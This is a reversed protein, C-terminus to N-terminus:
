RQTSVFRQSEGWLAQCQQKIPSSAASAAPKASAQLLRSRESQYVKGKRVTALQALNEADAKTRWLSLYAEDRHGRMQPNEAECVVYSNDYRALAKADITLAFVEPSTFALSLILVASHKM